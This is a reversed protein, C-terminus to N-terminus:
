PSSLSWQPFHIFINTAFGLIQQGLWAGMFMLTLTVAVLKITFSLTQEQIQTAAQFIAVMLGFFMSILIPPASLLLILLLGQYALQTVQTQFM